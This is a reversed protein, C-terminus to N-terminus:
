WKHKLPSLTFSHFIFSMFRLHFISPPTSNQKNYTFNLNIEKRQRGEDQRCKLTLSSTGSWITYLIFVKVLLFKLFVSKVHVIKNPISICKMRMKDNLKMSCINSIYIYMFDLYCIRISLLVQNDKSSTCDQLCLLLM